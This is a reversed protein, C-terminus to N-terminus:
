FQAHCTGAAAATATHESPILAPPTGQAPVLTHSRVQFEPDNAVQYYTSELTDLANILTEPVYKGGFRGYRGLSDPREVGKMQVCVVGLAASCLRTLALIFAPFARPQPM